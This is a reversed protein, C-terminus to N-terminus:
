QREAKGESSHPNTNNDETSPPPPATYPQDLAACYRDSVPWQDRTPLPQGDRLLLREEIGCSTCIPIRDDASSAIPQVDLPLGCRPCADIAQVTVRLGRGGLTGLVPHVGDPYWSHLTVYEGQERGDDPVLEVMLAHGSDEATATAAGTITLVARPDPNDDCLECLYAQPARRAAVPCNQDSYKCGHLACCHTIHVGTRAAPIRHPPTPDTV